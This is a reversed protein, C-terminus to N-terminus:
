DVNPGSVREFSAVKTDPKLTPPRDSSTYLFFLFLFCCFDAQYSIAPKKKQNNSNNAASNHVKHLRNKRWQVSHSTQPSCLSSISYCTLSLDSNEQRSQLTKRMCVPTVTISMNANDIKAKSNNTAKIRYLHLLDAGVNAKDPRYIHTSSVAQLDSSM